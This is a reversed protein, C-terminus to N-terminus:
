SVSFLDGLEAHVLRIIIEDFRDNDATKVRTDGANSQGLCLEFSHLLARDLLIHTCTGIVSHSDLPKSVRLVFRFLDLQKILASSDKDM